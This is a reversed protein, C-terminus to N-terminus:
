LRTFKETQLRVRIDLTAMGTGTQARYMCHFFMLFSHTGERDSLASVPPSEETDRALENMVLRPPVTRRIRMYM